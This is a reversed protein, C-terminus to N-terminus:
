KTVVFDSKEPDNNSKEMIENQLNKAQREKTRHVRKRVRYLKIIQSDSLKLRFTIEIEPILNKMLLWQGPEMNMFRTCAYREWKTDLACTSILAKRYTINKQRLQPRLFDNLGWLTELLKLGILDNDTLPTNIIEKKAMWLLTKLPIKSNKAYEKIDM